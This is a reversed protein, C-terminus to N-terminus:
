RHNYLRCLVMMGCLTRDGSSAVNPRFVTLIHLYAELATYGRNCLGGIGFRTSPLVALIRIHPGLVRRSDTPSSLRVKSAM